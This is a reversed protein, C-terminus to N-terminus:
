SSMCSRAPVQGPNIAMPRGIPAVLGGFGLPNAPEGVVGDFSHLRGPRIRSSCSWATRRPELGVGRSHASVTSPSRPLQIRGSRSSRRRGDAHVGVLQGVGIRLYGRRSRPRRGDVGPHGGGTRAAPPPWAPRRRSCDEVAAPLEARAGVWQSQIMRPAISALRRPADRQHRGWISCM